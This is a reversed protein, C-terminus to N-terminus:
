CFRHWDTTIRGDGNRAASKAAEDEAAKSFARGTFQLVCLWAVNFRTAHGFKFLRDLVRGESSIVKLKFLMAIQVLLPLGGMLLRGTHLRSM